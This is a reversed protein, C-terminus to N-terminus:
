KTSVNKQEKWYPSYHLEISDDDEESLLRHIEHMVEPSIEILFNDENRPTM